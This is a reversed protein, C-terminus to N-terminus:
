TSQKDKNAVLDITILTPTAYPNAPNAVFRPSFHYKTDQYIKAPYKNNDNIRFAVLTVAKGDITTEVVSALTLACTVYREDITLMRSTLSGPMEKSYDKQHHPYGLECYVPMSKKEQDSFLMLIMEKPVADPHTESRAVVYGYDSFNDFFGKSYYHKIIETMLEDSSEITPYPNENALIRKENNLLARSAWVPLLWGGPQTPAGRAYSGKIVMDSLHNIPFLGCHDVWESVQQTVGEISGNANIINTKDLYEDARQRYGAYVREKFEMDESDLRDKKDDRRRQRLLAEELSVDFYLVHDPRFGGLVMQEIDLFQSMLGRGAGQYAYSSDTFRDSIVVVGKELLPKIVTEVHQHRGAAFLLIETLPLMKEKRMALLTARIEEAVNTGGPERTVHVEYGRAEIAEKLAKVQSSKGSCDMGELAIFIGKKM